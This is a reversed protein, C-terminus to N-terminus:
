QQQLRWSPRVTWVLCAWWLRVIFVRVGPPCKRRSFLVAPPPPSSYWRAHLPATGETWRLPGGSRLSAGKASGANRRTRRSRLSFPPDYSVPFREGATDCGGHSAMLSPTSLGSPFCESSVHFSRLSPGLDEDSTGRILQMTPVWM